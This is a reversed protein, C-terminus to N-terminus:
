CGTGRNLEEFPKKMLLSNVFLSLSLWIMLIASSACLFIRPSVALLILPCSFIGLMVLSRPFYRINCIIANRIMNKVSNEYRAQLAFAWLGTELIFFFFVILIATLVPMQKTMYVLSGSFSITLLLFQMLWIVTAQKFNSRFAKFFCLGLKGEDNQMKQMVTYLATFSAGITIIPLCCIITLINLWVMDVTKGMFQILPSDPHFISNM